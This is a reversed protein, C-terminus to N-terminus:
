DHANGMETVDLIGLQIDFLTKKALEAGQLTQETIEHARKLARVTNLVFDSASLNVFSASPCRITRGLTSSPNVGIQTRRGGFEPPLPLLGIIGM